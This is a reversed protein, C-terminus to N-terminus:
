GMRRFSIEEIKNSEFIMKMVIRYQVTYSVIFTMECLAAAWNISMRM